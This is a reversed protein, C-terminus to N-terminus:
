DSSGMARTDRPELFPEREPSGGAEIRESRALEADFEAGFLVALNTVWLWVLFVVVGALSGYTKNYSAFNAVYIAFGGSALVWLAVALVSGPTLWRFGPHRVNPSAWYLVAIALSVLVAIVPWKLINWVLLGTEGIGVWEGVQKSIGGTVVIGFLSVALLLVMSLTLAIRLPLTKWLPRGEEIEYITNAARMFAAVYASAAWLAALLGIIALPGAFGGSRGLEEIGSTLIEGAQGPALQRVNEVLPETASTGALGVLASLVVVGPFISMMSYYTLAAAWDIMNDQQFEKVSRKIAGFWAHRSLQTPGTVTKSSAM